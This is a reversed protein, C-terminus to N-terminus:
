LDTFLVSSQDPVVVKRDYGVSEIELRATVGRVLSLGFAGVDNSYTQVLETQITRGLSDAYVPQLTARVLANAVPKGQMSLVLGTISCLQPTAAASLPGFEIDQYLLRANTGTNRFRVVYSHSGELLDLAQNFDFHYRGDENVSDTETMPNQVITTQWLGVSVDFWKGDLRRRIAVTPSEGTLGTAGSIIDLSLRAVDGLPFRDIM